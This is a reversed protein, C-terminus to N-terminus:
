ARHGGTTLHDLLLRNVAAAQEVSALHAADPIVEFRCDPVTAAIARGHRPPTAPDDAGAVVLTAASIAPLLPRLDLEAIAECCAAYGDATTRTFAATFAAVEAPGRAQFAATFWRATVPGAVSAMGHARVRRARDLWDRAPPLRAATCLLALREVREPASAALWMGVMGGLSLGVYHCRAISLHDLVAVVDAGLDEVRYPVDPVPSTGHGPHDYRLVQFRDALAALQPQWMARTTGLSGGLVVVPAGAPGTLDFDLM